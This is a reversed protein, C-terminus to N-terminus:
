QGRTTKRFSWDIPELRKAVDHDLNYKALEDAIQSPPLNQRISKEFVKILVDYIHNVKNRATKPNYGGPEFENAANIIGGANIIFDPAYLIGRDMLMKGMLPTALQNNASGAVAQCRMKRISKEDIISGLACPSLIDCETSCFDAPTIVKAGYLVALPHLKDTNIDTLVLEAGEWFLIDALKSGVQGLGQIAITRKKLSRSGWLMKAVAQIGKYVGWATFRSPDGSSQDNSLAAVYPTAERIIEMDETTSGVDEAVIYIGKLYNLVKGFAHLLEPTKEKPDAIIVSKGGGLGNEAIASKSTMAKALMLADKLAADRGVYRKIRAGGLAPGLKTNHVAIFCHLNCTPDKAEIVKQYGEVPIEEIILSNKATKPM